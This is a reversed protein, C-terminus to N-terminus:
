NNKYFLINNLFIDSRSNCSDILVTGLAKPIFCVNFATDAKSAFYKNFIHESIGYFKEDQLILDEM